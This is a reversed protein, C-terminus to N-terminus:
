LICGIMSCLVMYVPSPIYRPYDVIIEEDNIHQNTIYHNEYTVNIVYILNRFPVAIQSENVEQSIIRIQNINDLTFTEVTGTVYQRRNTFNASFVIISPLNNVEVLEFNTFYFNNFIQNNDTM